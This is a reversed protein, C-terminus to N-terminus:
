FKVALYKMKSYLTQIGDMRFASNTPVYLKKSDPIPKSLEFSIM